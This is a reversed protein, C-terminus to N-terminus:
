IKEITKCNPYGSCGYFQGYVSKRLVMPKGCKPCTKEAKELQKLETETKGTKSKCNLNICVEQAKRGQTIKIMPHSCLECIKESTKVKGTSPLNFTTKCEPYKDCAIFRGYKGRKIM